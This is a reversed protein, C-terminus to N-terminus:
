LALGMNVRVTPLHLRGELARAYFAVAQAYDQSAYRADGTLALVVPSAPDATMLREYVASAEAERQAERLAGALNQLVLPNPAPGQAAREWLTISDRWIM